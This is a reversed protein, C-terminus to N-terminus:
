RWTFNLVYGHARIVDEHWQRFHALDTPVASGTCHMFMALDLGPDTPFVLDNSVTLEMLQAM